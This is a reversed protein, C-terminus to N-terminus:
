KTEIRNQIAQANEAGKEMSARMLSEEIQLATSIRDNITKTLEANRPDAHKIGLKLGVAADSPLQKDILDYVAQFFTKADERTKAFLPGAGIVFQVDFGTENKSEEIAEIHKRLVLKATKIDVFDM